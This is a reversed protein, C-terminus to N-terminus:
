HFIVSGGDIEIYAAFNAATGGISVHAPPSQPVSLLLLLGQPLGVLSPTPPLNALMEPPISFTSADPPAACFVFGAAGTYPNMGAALITMRRGSALHGWQVTVGKQRDLDHSADRNTWEFSLPVNLRVDIPGIEPSGAGTISYDGPAFFPPKPQVGPVPMNGGFKGGLLALEGRARNMEAHGNPGDVSLSAGAEYSSKLWPRFVVQAASQSLLASSAFIGTYATCTGAPPLLQLPGLFPAGPDIKTFGALASDDIVDLPKGPVLEIRLRARALVLFGAKGGDPPAQIWYEPARCKRGAPDIALTVANSVIGHSEFIVPVACGTAVNKPLKFAVQDVGDGISTVRVDEAAKGGVLVRPRIRNLGTSRLSARKGPRYVEFDAPGWGEGNQSYIGPSSESVRIKSPASAENRAEVRLEVEGLPLDPPLIAVIETASARIVRAERTV